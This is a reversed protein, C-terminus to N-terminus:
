KLVEYLDEITQLKIDNGKDDTITGNKWKSGFDLEFMWYTIWEDEDEFHAELLDIVSDVIEDTFAIPCDCNLLECLKMETDYTKKIREMHKKFEVLEM